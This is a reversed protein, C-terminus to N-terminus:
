RDRIAKAILIFMAIGCAYFAALYLDDNNRM